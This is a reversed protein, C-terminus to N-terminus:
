FLDMTSMALAMGLLSDGLSRVRACGTLLSDKLYHTEQDSIGRESKFCLRASLVVPLEFSAVLILRVHICGFAKM